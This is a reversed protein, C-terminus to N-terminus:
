VPKENAVATDVGAAECAEAYAVQRRIARRAALAFHANARAEVEAMDADQAANALCEWAARLVASQCHLCNCDYYIELMGMASAAIAEGIRRVRTERAAREEDSMEDSM